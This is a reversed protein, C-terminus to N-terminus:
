RRLNFKEEVMRSQRRVHDNVTVQLRYEGSADSDDFNLILLPDLVVFFNGVNRRAEFSVRSLRPRVFGVKGDPEILRYDASFDVLGTPVPTYNQVIAPFLYDPGIVLNRLRGTTKQKEPPSKIWADKETQAEIILLSVDLRETPPFPQATAPSLRLFALVLLVISQRRM